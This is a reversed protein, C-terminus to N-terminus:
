EDEEYEHIYSLRKEGNGMDEWYANGEALDREMQERLEKDAIEREEKVTYPSLEWYILADKQLISKFYHKQLIAPSNGMLFSAQNFDKNLSVYYVGWSHRLANKKAKVDTPLGIRRFSKTFAGEIDYVDESNTKFLAGYRREVPILRLWKKAIEPLNAHRGGTKGRTFIQSDGKEELLPNINEWSMHIVLESQRLGCFLSMVVVAFVRSELTGEKPRNHELIKRVEEITYYTVELEPLKMPLIKEVTPLKCYAFVQKIAALYANKAKAMCDLSLIWNSVENETLSFMARSQFAEGFREVQHCLDKFYKKSLEEGALIKKKRWEVFSKAAEKAVFKSEMSFEKRAGEIIWDSLSVSPSSARYRKIAVKEEESLIVDVFNGTKNAEDEYAKAKKIAAELDSAGIAKSFVRGSECVPHYVRYSCRPNGKWLRIKIGYKFVPIAEETKRM